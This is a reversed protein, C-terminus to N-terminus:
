RCAEEPRNGVYRTGDECEVIVFGESGVPPECLENTKPDFWVREAVDTKALWGERQGASVYLSEPSEDIVRARIGIRLTGVAKGDGREVPLEWLRVGRTKYAQAESTGLEQALEEATWLQVGRVCEPPVDGDPAEGAERCQTLALALVLARGWKAGFRGKALQARPLQKEAHSRISAM